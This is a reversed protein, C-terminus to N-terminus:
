ILLHAIARSRRLDALSPAALAPVLERVCCERGVHRLPPDAPPENQRNQSGAAAGRGCEILPPSELILPLCWKYCMFIM